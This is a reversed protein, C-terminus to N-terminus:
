GALDRTRHRIALERCALGLMGGAVNIMVDYWSPTRAPNFHQLGEPICAFVVTAVICMRKIPVSLQALYGQALAGAFLVSWTFFTFAHFLKAPTYYPLGFGGFFGSISDVLPSESPKFIDMLYFIALTWAAFVFWRATNFNQVRETESM